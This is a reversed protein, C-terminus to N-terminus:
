VKQIGFFFDCLSVEFIDALLLVTVLLLRTQGSEIKFYANQSMNLKDAVNQQSLGKEYRFKRIRNCILQLEKEKM